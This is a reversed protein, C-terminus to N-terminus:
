FNCWLVETERGKKKGGAANNPLDFTHRTWGALTTDYPESAYGSLMVKGQCQRLVDLLERHDAETMEHAYVEAAARSAPLYPPDLYFLTAPGDQQRIVEVAPRNLVVVRSLRAHVAPLGEVATLWASAQENMGRRTRTRSLPAFTDMRGALSQRCRAFFAWARAVPDPHERLAPAADWEPESFPTAQAARLFRPFTDEGRLVRWFNSLDGDIDNAVESVGAQPASDGAWLSRDEPDRALLVALSGAFPEVYHLHPPMMAVIQRALYHKGGHWKLPSAPAASM